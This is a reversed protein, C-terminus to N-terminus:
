DGYYAKAVVRGDRLPFQLSEANYRADALDLNFLICEATFQADPVRFRGGEPFERNFLTRVEPPTMGVQVADFFRRYPQRPSFDVLHLVLIAGAFLSGLALPFAPRPMRGLLITLSLGWVLVGAWLWAALSLGLFVAVFWLLYVLAVLSVAFTAIMGRSPRGSSVGRARWAVWPSLLIAFLSLGALPLAFSLPM